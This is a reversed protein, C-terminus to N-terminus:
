QKTMNRIQEIESCNILKHVDLLIIVNEDVKIMGKAYSIINDNVDGSLSDIQKFPIEIAQIISDVILGISLGDIDAMIIGTCNDFSRINVTLRSRFDIVPIVKGRLNIIEIILETPDPFAIIDRVDAIEIFHRYDIGYEEEGIAFILFKELKTDM